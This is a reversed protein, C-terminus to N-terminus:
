RTQCFGYESCCPAWDPCGEPWAVDEPDARFPPALCSGAGQGSGLLCSVLHAGQSLLVLCVAWSVMVATTDRVVASGVVVVVARQSLLMLLEDPTLNAELNCDKGRSYDDNLVYM